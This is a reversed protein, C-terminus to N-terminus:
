KPVETEAQKGRSEDRINGQNQKKHKSFHTEYVQSSVTKFSCKTCKIVLGDAHSADPHKNKLHM